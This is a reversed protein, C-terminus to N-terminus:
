LIWNLFKLLVVKGERRLQLRSRQDLTLQEPQLAEVPRRTAVARRDIWCKLM